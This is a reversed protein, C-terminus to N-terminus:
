EPPIIIFDGLAIRDAKKTQKHPEWARVHIIPKEEITFDILLFLFGKDSYRTTKWDQIMNVAYFCNNMKSQTIEISDYKVKIFSNNKFTSSLNKIYEQKTLRVFKVKEAELNNELNINSKQESIVKGVIILANDSFVSEIYKIDKRDYATRFNEVFSLIVFRRSEEIASLGRKMVEKYQHETVGFKLDDIIGDKTIIFVAEQYVTSGEDDTQILPINRIEYNTNKNRNILDVYLETENTKFKRNKWILNIVQNGSETVITSPIDLVSINKSYSDTLINLLDEINKSIVNRKSNQKENVIEVTTFYQQSFLINSSFIIIILIIKKM